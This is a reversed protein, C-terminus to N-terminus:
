GPGTIVMHHSPIHPCSHPKTGAAPQLCGAWMQMQASQEGVSAGCACCNLSAGQSIIKSWPQINQESRAEIVRKLLSNDRGLYRWKRERLHNQVFGQLCVGGSFNSFLVCVFAYPASVSYPLCRSFIYLLFWFHLFHITRQRTGSISFSFLLLTTFTTLPPKLRRSLSRSICSFQGNHKLRKDCWLQLWTPAPLVCLKCNVGSSVHGSTEQPGAEPTFQLARPPPRANISLWELSGGNFGARSYSSIAISSFGSFFTHSRAHAYNDGGPAAAQTKRSM